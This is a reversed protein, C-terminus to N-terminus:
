LKISRKMEEIRVPTGEQIIVRVDGYGIQRIIELLRKEKESITEGTLNVEDPRKEALSKDAINKEALNKEFKNDKTIPKPSKKNTDAM